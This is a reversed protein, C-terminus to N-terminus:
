SYYNLNSYPYWGNQMMLNNTAYNHPVSAQPQDYMCDSYNQGNYYYEATSPQQPCPPPVMQQAPMVNMLNQLPPRTNGNRKEKMRKNQFWVKIQRESLGLQRALFARGTQDLYKRKHFERELGALQYPTFITRFRKPKPQPASQVPANLQQVNTNQELNNNQEVNGNQEVNIAALIEELSPWNEAETTINDFAWDLDFFNNTGEM